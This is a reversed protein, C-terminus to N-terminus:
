FQWKVIDSYRTHIDYLIRGVESNPDKLVLVLKAVPRTLPMLSWTYVYNHMRQEFTNLVNPDPHDEYHTKKDQILEDFNLCVTILSELGRCSEYHYLRCENMDITYQERLKPNTGDFIHINAREFSEKYKFARKEKDVLSSPVLFLMDYSCGDLENICENLLKAHMTDTYEGTVIVEGGALNNDKLESDPIKATDVYANVFKVLNTEQRLSTGLKIRDKKSGFHQKQGCKILQNIGDAAIVHEKGYLNILISLETDTWDQAEDILIYEWEQRLCALDEDGCSKILDLLGKLKTEVTEETDDYTLINDPDITRILSNFYRYMTSIGITEPDYNEHDVVFSMLRRIDSVLAHNYSLFLCNHPENGTSLRLATQLLYFTKGTGAKGSFVTLDNGIKLNELSKQVKKEILKNFTRATLGKPVPRAEALLQNIDVLFRKNEPSYHFTTTDQQSVFLSMMENFSFDNPLAGVDNQGNKISALQHRNISKLWVFNSTRPKYAFRREFYKIFSYKQEENQRTANKDRGEKYTVYLDTGKPHIYRAEHEKLEIVICFDNVYFFKHDPNYNIPFKCNKLAGAVLLDVDRTSQGHLTLNSFILIDGDADQPIGSEINQKLKVAADSESTKVGNDIIRVKIAM